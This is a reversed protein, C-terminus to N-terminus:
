LSKTGSIAIEDYHHLQGDKRINEISHQLSSLCGKEVLQLLVFLFAFCVFNLIYPYPNPM